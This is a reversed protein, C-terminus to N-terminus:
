QDQRETQGASERRRKLKFTGMGKAVLEGSSDRVEGECFVLSRGSRLVRGEARLQGNGASLFSVSLDVTVVGAGGDATSRAASGLTVDLLTMVVGGHATEWSNTLEPRIDLSVVTRGREWHEAHAGLLELFPISLGFFPKRPAM